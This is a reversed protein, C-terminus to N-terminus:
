LEGNGEYMNVETVAPGGENEKENRKERIDFKRLHCHRWLHGRKGCAHCIIAKDNKETECQMGPRKMESRQRGLKNELKSDAGHARTVHEMKKDENRSEEETRLRHMLMNLSLFDEHMLKTRCEKWSPPLKSIIVSIHFNEDIWMGSANISHVINHLEQVQELISIGDVIQFQIYKNVQSRKTGFDDDYVLELEEWLEKASYTKKSYQYFLHDSLSSLIHRCCIYNDDVWKQAADKAQSIEESSAEPSLAIIPCPDTLVYSINLQKLFFGMQHAWCYYNKGDLRTTEIPILGQPAFATMSNSMNAEVQKREKPTLVEPTFATMSSCMDAEIQNTELLIGQPAVATEPNSADAEIQKGVAESRLRSGMKGIAEQIAPISKKFALWQETTLSIGKATPFRKGHKQYYDRITVYKKGRFDHIAVNRNDSLKYIVEAGGDNVHKADVNSRTEQEQVVEKTEEQAKDDLSLLFSEVARRVLRKHDMGSLDIGVREAAMTRVKYENVEELDVDKLIEIVTEEIKRSQTKPEM